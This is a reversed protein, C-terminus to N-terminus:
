HHLLDSSSEGTSHQLSNLSVPTYIILATKGVSPLTLNSNSVLWVCLAAYITRCIDLLASAPTPQWALFRYKDSIRTALLQENLYVIIVGGGKRQKVNAWGEKESDKQRAQETCSPPSQHWNTHLRQAIQGDSSAGANGPGFTPRLNAYYWSITFLMLM